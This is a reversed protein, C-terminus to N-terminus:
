FFFWLSISQDKGRTVTYNWSFSISSFFLIECTDSFNRLLRVTTLFVIIAHSFDLTGEKEIFVSSEFSSERFFCFLFFFERLFLISLSLWYTNYLFYFRFKCSCSNIKGSKPTVVNKNSNNVATQHLFNIFKFILFVM